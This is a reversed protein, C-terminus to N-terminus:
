WKKFTDVFSKALKRSYEENVIKLVAATKAMLENYAFVAMTKGQFDDTFCVRFIYDGELTIKPNTAGPTIMPIKAKQLMPAMVLSHSSWIAGVVAAPQLSVAQEAAQRSGIQTSKNDLIILEAPRGLLGGTRNIEDVALEAVPIVPTNHKAAIGTKALILTFRVPEAMVTFAFLETWCLLVVLRKM